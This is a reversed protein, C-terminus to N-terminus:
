IEESFEIQGVQLCPFPYSSNGNEISQITKMSTYTIHNGGGFSIVRAPMLVMPNSLIPGQNLNYPTSTVGTGEQLYSKTIIM